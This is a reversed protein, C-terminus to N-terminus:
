ALKKAKIISEFGWYEWTGPLKKGAFCSLPELFWGLIVLLRPRYAKSSFIIEFNNDSLLQVISEFSPPSETHTLDDYYNLTGARNPFGISEESPFALFIQGDAKLCQLMALLVGARDSCHELNHNSIVANFKNKFKAIECTFKEGTTIIYEDALIPKSQNYHGVDIGYYTCKPLIQKTKYPSNNGCGVDLICSNSPLKLLFSFRGNPRLFIDLWRKILM